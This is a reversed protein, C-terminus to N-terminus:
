FLETELMEQRVKKTDASMIVEAPGEEAVSNYKSQFWCFM